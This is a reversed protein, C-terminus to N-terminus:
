TPLSIENSSELFWANFTEMQLTHPGCCDAQEYSVGFHFQKKLPQSIDVFHDTWSNDQFPNDLELHRLSNKKCAQFEGSKKMVSYVSTSM